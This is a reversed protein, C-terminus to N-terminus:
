CRAAGDSARRLARWRLIVFPWLLAVGPLLLPRFAYAGRASADIRDIAWCVFWLGVVFGVALWVECAMVILRALAM